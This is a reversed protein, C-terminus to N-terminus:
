DWILIQNDNNISKTKLVTTRNFPIWTWEAIKKLDSQYLLLIFDVMIYKLFCIKVLIPNCNYSIAVPSGTVCKLKTIQSRILTLKVNQLFINSGKEYSWSKSITWLKWNSEFMDLWSFLKSSKFGLTFSSKLNFTIENKIPHTIKSSKSKVNLLSLQIM